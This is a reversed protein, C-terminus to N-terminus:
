NADTNMPTVVEILMLRHYDRPCSLDSCFEMHYRCFHDKESLILLDEWVFMLTVSIFFIGPEIKQNRQLVASGIEWPTRSASVGATRLDEGFTLCHM